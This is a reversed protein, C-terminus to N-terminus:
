IRYVFLIPYTDTVKFEEWYQCKKLRKVSSHLSDYTKYSMALIIGGIRIPKDNWLVLITQSLTGIKVYERKKM